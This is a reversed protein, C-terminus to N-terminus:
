CGWCTRTRQTLYWRPAPAARLNVWLRSRQVPLLVHHTSFLSLLLILSSLNWEGAERKTVSSQDQLTEILIPFLRDLYLLLDEGGIQALEGFSSLIQSVLASSGEKTKPLLVKFIPDVYPKVLRQSAAMLQTLLKAAEEKSRSFM